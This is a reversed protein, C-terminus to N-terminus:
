KDIRLVDFKLLYTLTRYLYVQAVPGSQAFRSIIEAVTLSEKQAIIELLQDITISPSRKNAGFNTMWQARIMELKQPDAMSGLALRQQPSLIETPYHNLVRCPDDCLPNVISSPLPKAKARRESLEKWLTEYAGIVVQWDYVEKARQRGNAGMRQRLEPRAILTTLAQACADIDVAAMLSVHGIYTSYNLSDYNYEAAFDLACGAPPMLTPIRFGDVEHRVTEKYGNWDSVIVPLGAAMAEIPTLGFTEQINDALSIFIDAASWIGQRIEPRRGDVFLHNVTPSFLNASEKFNSEQQQDEFWGAQILHLKANTAKAAKEMALYMPVPHAKAHFILRGVFLVVIDNPAIGLSTRLQTGIERNPTFGDCDVGLPIVPLQIQTKPRAGLRQELYQAWNGLLTEVMTKVANSTCILSDWPQVPATLFDGLTKMTEKSAITHTIGCLSYARSDGYRRQWALDLIMPDPRYLTGAEQLASFNGSPVWNIKRDGNMWPRIRQCFEEFVAKQQTYCYLSPASSYRAIAKLFGEGAAQRGMLRQGRTDFGETQYFIAATQM